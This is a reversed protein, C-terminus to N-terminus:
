KLGLLGKEQHTALSPGADVTEGWIDPIHYMCKPNLLRWFIDRNQVKFKLFFM